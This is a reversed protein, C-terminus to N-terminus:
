ENQNQSYLLTKFSANSLLALSFFLLYTLVDKVEGVGPIIHYYQCVEYVVSIALAGIIWPWHIKRDWVILMCSGFAYAWVGDPVYYRILAPIRVYQETRYIVLGILLPMFVNLFTDYIYPFPSTRSGGRPYSFISGM